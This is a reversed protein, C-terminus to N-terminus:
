CVQNQLREQEKKKRAEAALRARKLQRLTLIRRSAACSRPCNMIRPLVFQGPIHASSCAGGAAAIAQLLCM